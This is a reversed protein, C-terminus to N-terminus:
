AKRRRGALRPEIYQSANSVRVLRGPRRHFGAPGRSRCRTRPACANSKPSRTRSPAARV